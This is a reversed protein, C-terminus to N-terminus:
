HRTASVLALGRQQNVALEDRSKRSGSIARRLTEHIDPSLALIADGVRIRQAEQPLFPRIESASHVLITSGPRYVFEGRRTRILVTDGAYAEGSRTFDAKKVTPVDSAEFSAEGLDLAEDAGGRLLAKRLASARAALPAFEPLREIPGLEAALLGVGSSDGLLWVSPPVAASTMLIHLTEPTPGVIIMRQLRAVTLQAALDDASVVVIKWRKVRESLIFLDAMRRDPVVVLIGAAGDPAADLLAALKASVPTEEEWAAVKTQISGSLCLAELAKSPVLDAIASLKALAVKPRFMARVALDVEDDGDHIVDAIEKAERMGFPLSVSRRLFGLARSAARASDTERAARLVGGLSLLATRLPALSADKIDADFNVSPLDTPLVAAPGIMGPQDLYAGSEIPRARQPRLTNGHLRMAKVARRM